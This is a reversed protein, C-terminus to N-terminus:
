LGDVTQILDVVVYSHIFLTNQVLFVSANDLHFRNDFYTADDRPHIKGPLDSRSVDLGMSQLLQLFVDNRYNITPIDPHAADKKRNLSIPFAVLNRGGDLSTFNFFVTIGIEKPFKEILYGYLEWGKFSVGHTPLFDLTFREQPELFLNHDPLTVIEDGGPQLPFAIEKETWCRQFRDHFNKNPLLRHRADRFFPAYESLRLEAGSVVFEYFSPSGRFHMVM